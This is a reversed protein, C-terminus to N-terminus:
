SSRCREPPMQKRYVPEAAGSAASEDRVIRRARHDYVYVFDGGPTDLAILRNEEDWTYNETGASTVRALRNGNNDYSFTHTATQGSPGYSILQNSNAGNSGNGFVYDTTSTGDSKSARNDALDYGYDTTVASGASPTITETDLRNCRDYTNVVIRDTVGSLTHDEACRLVNGVGDHSYPWSSVSQSYDFSSVLASTSTREELLLTRGLKDRTTTTANGNPLTKRTVLGGLDYLYYTTRGSPTGADSREECTDLRNLTDYTSILTTGTRGYTTALRNGM